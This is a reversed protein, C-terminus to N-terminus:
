INQFMDETVTVTVDFSTSGRTVNLTVTSGVRAFLMMDTVHFSRTVQKTLGDVTISNIRDGVALADKVVSTETFSIIEPLEVRIVRGDDDIVTGVVYSTITIGLLAKKATISTAGDCYLIINDAIRTAVNSPIAYGINDISTGNRKANVIGILQGGADFLGGGSNGENIAASVRIVRPTIETKEDAGTMSLVESEVSVIGNTVSIGLAEPNGIAYVTDFAAVSDSDAVSAALANSNRLVESDTIKLVAIDNAMSGGVYSASIAYTSLEQGYLCVAVSTSIGNGSTADANYLVHFNTIIYADGAERDLKYIVGSGRSTYTETSYSPYGSNVEFAAIISVSSLLARSTLSIDEETISPNQTSPYFEPTTGSVIDGTIPTDTTGNGGGGGTGDGTDEYLLLDLVTMCSSLSFVGGVLMLTVLLLSIIKKM